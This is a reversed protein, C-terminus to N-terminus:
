LALGAREGDIRAEEDFPNAGARGVEVTLLCAQFGLLPTIQVREIIGSYSFDTPGPDRLSSLSRPSANEIKGPRLQLLVPLLGSGSGRFTVLHHQLM